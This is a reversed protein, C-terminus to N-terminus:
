TSTVSEQGQTKGAKQCATDWSGFAFAFGTELWNESIVWNNAQNTILSLHEGLLRVWKTPHPKALYKHKELSEIFDIPFSTTSNPRSTSSLLHESNIHCTDFELSNLTFIFNICHFCFINLNKKEKESLNVANEKPYKRWSMIKM